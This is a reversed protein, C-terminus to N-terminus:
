AARETVPRFKWGYKVLGNDNDGRRPVLEVEMGVEVSDLDADALLAAVKGGYRDAEEGDLLVTCVPLPAEEPGIPLIHQLNYTVVRGRRPLPM